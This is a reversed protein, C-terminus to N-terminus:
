IGECLFRDGPDNKAKFASGDPNRIDPANVYMTRSKYCTFPKSDKGVCTQRFLAPGKSDLKVLLAILLFLPWFLFLALLSLFIDILRKIIRQYTKM